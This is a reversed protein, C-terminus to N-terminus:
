DEIKWKTVNVVGFTTIRLEPIVPLAAFSLTMFPDICKNVGLQYAAEHIEKLKKKAEEASVESMLGAVPLAYSAKVEGDAYVIMGGGMEKLKNIAAAMEKENAGVAIINHADHAVTTAIAGKKLGYGKLFGIGIHGTNKHREVVCVKLIDKETDVNRAKGENTTLLQGDVLGIVYKDETNELMKETIESIHVTNHAKDNLKSDIHSKCKEELYSDTLEVGGKYVSNIIVKNIDDLVVFDALFGPSIAARDTMGLYFCACTSAMYYVTLPDAGLSIAKRIIHDIHGEDIIDNIHRDDTCFMCRSAYPEKCLNILGELNKGATGERIMIYLGAKIKEVAEEFNSCEHDSLVGAAVYGMLSKDNVFPAHGDILKNRKIAEYTKALIKEDNEIVGNVNMLEAIGLVSKHDLFEKLDDIELCAGAEDFECSPVCSPVMFFIDMPLNKAVELMYRIGDVGMVNAIEHPDTLVTTTGHKLAEKAFVEPVVTTSEIHIHADVFGPVITKGTMDIEKEGSYTGIGAFSGHSIAIDAKRFCATFVDLFNANKLVLEAKKKGSAVKLFDLYEDETMNRQQFYM